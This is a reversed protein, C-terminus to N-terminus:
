SNSSLFERLATDAVSTRSRESAYRDLPAELEADVLDVVMQVPDSGIQQALEAAAADLKNYEENEAAAKEKNRDLYAQDSLLAHEISQM